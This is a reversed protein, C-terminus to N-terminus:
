PGTRPKKSKGGAGASDRDGGSKSKMVQVKQLVKASKLIEPLVFLKIQGGRLFVHEMKAVRGDRGTMIVAYFM